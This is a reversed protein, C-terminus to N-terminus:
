MLCSITVGAWHSYSAPDTCLRYSYLPLIQARATVHPEHSSQSDLPTKGEVYSTVKHYLVKSPDAVDEQRRDCGLPSCRVLRSDICQRIPVELQRVATKLLGKTTHMAQPLM